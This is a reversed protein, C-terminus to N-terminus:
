FVKLKETVIKFIEDNDLLVYPIGNEECAQGSETDRTILVMENEKAYDQEMIIVDFKNQKKKAEIGLETDIVGGPPLLSAVMAQKEPDIPWVIFAKNMLNKFRLKHEVRKAESNHSATLLYLTFPLIFMKKM